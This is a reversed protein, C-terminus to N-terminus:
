IDDRSVYRKPYIHSDYSNNRNDGSVYVHGEPVQTAKTNYAPREALFSEDQAIGNVYLCRSPERSPTPDYGYLHTTEKLKLVVIPTNLLEM